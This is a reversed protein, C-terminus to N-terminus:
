IKSSNQKALYNEVFVFADEKDKVKGDIWGEEVMSLLKGILPSSPLNFRDMLELGNIIKPPKIPEEIDLMFSFIVKIGDEHAQIDEDTTAEGVASYRDALSLILLMIIDDELDKSLRFVAKKTIVGGQILTGVRMHNLVIRKASSIEKHSLKLRRGIRGTQECGIREHGIFKLRGNEEKITEPKGLDHFLAIFKLLSYRPHDSSINEYLYDKIPSNWKPFLIPLNEMIIEVQHVTEFSHDLLDLHHYGRGEISSLTIIEPFISSLIDLNYSLKLFKSSDKNKLIEFLEYAIRESASDKILRANKLIYDKTKEEIEFSLESAFRVARLLRIPDKKLNEEFSRILCNDLDSLGFGLDVLINKEFDYALSNITFDRRELDKELSEEILSFDLLLGPLVVRATREDLVVFSGDLADAVSKGFNIPSHSIAFDIDKPKSINKTKWEKNRMEILKDRIYGGVLFIEINRKKALSLITLFPEKDFDVKWEKTKV